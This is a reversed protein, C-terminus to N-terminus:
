GKVGGLTIGKVFYKQLFPYLCIIPLMTVIVAAMQIGEGFAHVRVDQPVGELALSANDILNRLVLQLPHGSPRQMFMLGEFWRNWAGVAAFLSLTALM